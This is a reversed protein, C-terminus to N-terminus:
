HKEYREILKDCTPIKVTDEIQGIVIEEVDAFDLQPYNAQCVLNYTENVDGRQVELMFPQQSEPITIENHLIEHVCEVYIEEGNMKDGVIWINKKSDTWALCGEPDNERIARPSECKDTINFTYGDIIIVGSLWSSDLPSPSIFFGLISTTIEIALLLIVGVVVILFGFSLKDLITARDSEEEGYELKTPKKM